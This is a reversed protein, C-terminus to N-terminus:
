SASIFVPADVSSFSCWFYHDLSSRGGLFFMIIYLGSGVFLSALFCVEFHLFLPCFTALYSCSACLCAALSPQGALPTRQTHKHLNYDRLNSTESKAFQILFAHVLGWQGGPRHPPNPRVEGTGSPHRPSQEM